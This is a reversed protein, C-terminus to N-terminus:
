KTAQKFKYEFGFRLSANKTQPFHSMDLVNYLFQVQGTFRKSITYTRFLGVNLRFRTLRDDEEAPYKYRALSAETFKLWEAETHLYYSGRWRLDNFVRLGFVEDYAISPDKVSVTYRWSAGLGPRFRGSLKYALYPSLDVAAENPKYFQFGIGPVIRERFPKGKMENPVHKPLYRSDPISKYKKKLKDLQAIGAKLKDDKTDLLENVQQKGAEKAKEKLEENDKLNTVLEQYQQLINKTATFKQQQDHIGKVEDMQLAANELEKPLAEVKELNGSAIEKIESKYTEAKKTVEGAKAMQNKIKDIDKTIDLEGLKDNPLQQLDNVKDNLSKLGEPMEAKPLKLEPLNLEKNGTLPNSLTADPLEPLTSSLNVKLDNLPNDMTVGVPNNGLNLSDRFALKQNIKQQLSAVRKSISQAISDKAHQGAKLREDLARSISDKKNGFRVKERLKISLSDLKREYKATPLRLAQLSDIKQNVRNLVSDLKNLEFLSHTLSDVKREFYILTDPKTIKFDDVKNFVSDKKVILSQAQAVCALFLFIISLYFKM